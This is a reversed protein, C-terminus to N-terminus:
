AARAPQPRAPLSHGRPPSYGRAPHRGDPLPTGEVGEMSARQPGPTQAALAWGWQVSAALGVNWSAAIAFGAGDPVSLVM